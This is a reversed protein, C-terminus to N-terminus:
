DIVNRVDSTKEFTNSTKRIYKSPHFVKADCLMNYDYTLNQILNIADLASVNEGLSLVTKSNRVGINKKDFLQDPNDGKPM